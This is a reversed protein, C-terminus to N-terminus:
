EGEGGDLGSVSMDAYLPFLVCTEGVKSCGEDICKTYIGYKYDGKSLYDFININTQQYDDQYSDLVASKEVVCNTNVLINNKSVDYSFSQDKPIIIKLTLSKDSINYGKVLGYIFSESYKFERDRYQKFGSQPSKFSYIYQLLNLLDGTYKSFITSSLTQLKEEVVQKTYEEETPVWDPKPEGSDVKWETVETTQNVKEKDVSNGKRIYFFWLSLSALFLSLVIIIPLILKRM